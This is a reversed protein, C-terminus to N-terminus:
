FDLNKMSISNQVMQTVNIIVRINFSGIRYEM